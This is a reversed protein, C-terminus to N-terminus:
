GHAAQVSPDRLVPARGVVRDSRGEVRQLPHDVAGAADVPLAVAAAQRDVDRALQPRLLHAGLAVCWVQRQLRREGDRMEENRPRRDVDLLAGALQHAPDPQAHEGLAVVGDVAGREARVRALLFRQEPLDAPQDLLRGAAELQGSQELAAEVQV